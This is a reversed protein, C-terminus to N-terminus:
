VTLNNPAINILLDGEEEEKKHRISWCALREINVAKIV